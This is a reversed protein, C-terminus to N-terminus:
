PFLNRVTEPRFSNALPVHITITETNNTAQMGQLSIWYAHARILAKCRGQYLWNPYENSIAVQILIGPTSGQRLRDYTQVDLDVSLNTGTYNPHETSKVQVRVLESTSDQVFFDQGRRDRSSRNPTFGGALCVAEVWVEGFDGRFQNLEGAGLVITM